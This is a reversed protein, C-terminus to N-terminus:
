RRPFVHRRGSLDGKGPRGAAWRSEKFWEDLEQVSLPRSIYTGQAGPCDFGILRDLAEKSDVGEAIVDLALNRALEISTRVIAADNEDKAMGMVFSKDIKVTDVPLQKLYALSSYGTGFDDIALKLGMNSLRQLMDMARAPESMVASETIELELWNPSTKYVALQEAIAEALYPGQLDHVSLNVSISVFCGRAHLMQIQQLAANIVWLTLNRIMGNQELLPIFTDPLQLSGNPHKWRVLAELGRTDHTKLNVKPQYYLEFQEQDVARRLDGMLALRSSNHQDMAPDYFAYGGNSNKASYMAVDARQLLLQAEVGHDPYHAIGVSAGIYLSRGEIEFPRRLSQLLMRAATDAQKYDVAPLLLAFEDGGMRAVTDSKRLKDRLRVAVEQLLKDGIDHGLTDNIDKFRDLDMIILAFPKYDHRANFIVQQLRDHFLTRNPLATLPDTCAMHELSAYLEKLRTTMENFGAALEVIEANGDVNVKEGLWSEDYRLRRLQQTLTQLPKMATKHMILLAIIIALAIAIVALLLVLNITDGLRAYFDEMNVAAGISFVPSGHAQLGYDAILNKTAADAAPWAASKYFVTNDGRTLMVPVGLQTELASVRRVFDTIIQLYGPVGEHKLSLATVHLIRDNVVCLGAASTGNGSLSRSRAATLLPECIVSSTPLPTSGSALAMLALDQNYAYIGVLGSAYSISSLQNFAQRLRQNTKIPDGRGLANRFEPDGRVVLAQAQAETEIEHRLRNVSFKLQESLATQRTEVAFDRLMESGAVVALTALAGVVVVTGILSVRMSIGNLFVMTM